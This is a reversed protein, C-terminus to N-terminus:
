QTSGLVAGTEGFRSARRWRTAAALSARPTQERPRKALVATTDAPGSRTPTIPTALRQLKGRRPRSSAASVANGSL